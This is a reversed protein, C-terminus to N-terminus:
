RGLDLAQGARLLRVTVGEISGPAARDRAPSRAGRADLVLVNSAGVVEFSNGHVLICTKEDVGIGVLEPHDLVASLLRNFRQRRVFHQDVIAGQMLGLGTSFVNTGNRIYKLGSDEDEAAREARPAREPAGGQGRTRANAPASPGASSSPVQGAVAGAPGGPGASSSEGAVATGRPEVREAAAGGAAESAGGAPIEAAAPAKFGLDYDGTIMVDSMVAAGASTGGVVAGEVFRQRVVDVLGAAHLAKMLRTQVGGPFWIVQAARVKEEARAPDELDLWEVNTAGHKKWTEVSNAGTEALESAQPLIVVKADKGGAAGLMREYMADTTGGGGVICLWGRAGDLVISRAPPADHAPARTTSCAALLLVVTLALTRPLM